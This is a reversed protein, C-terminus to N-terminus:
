TADPRLAVPRVEVSGVPVPVAKALELAEDLDAATRRPCGTGVDILRQNYEMWGAMMRDFEPTGPAPAEYPETYITLMYEM